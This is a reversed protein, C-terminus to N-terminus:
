PRWEKAPKGLGKRNRPGGSVPFQRPAAIDGPVVKRGFYSYSMEIYRSRLFDVYQQTDLHQGLATALLASARIRTFFSLHVKEYDDGFRRKALHSDLRMLGFYFCRHYLLPETEIRDKLNRLNKLFVARAAAEGSVEQVKQQCSKLAAIDVKGLFSRVFHRTQQSTAVRPHRYSELPEQDDDLFEPEQEEQDANAQNEGDEGKQSTKESQQDAGSGGTSACSSLSLILGIVLLRFLGNIM